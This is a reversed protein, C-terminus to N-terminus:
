FRQSLRWAAERSMSKVMYQDLEDETYPLIEFTVDILVGLVEKDPRRKYHAQAKQALATFESYLMDDMVQRIALIDEMAYYTAVIDYDLQQLLIKEEIIKSQLLNWTRSAMLAITEIRDTLKQRSRFRSLRKSRLQSPSLKRTASNGPTGVQDSFVLRYLLRLLRRNEQAEHQSDIWGLLVRMPRSSWEKLLDTTAKVRSDERSSILQHYAVSAALIAVILLGSTAAATVLGTWFIAQSDIVMKEYWESKTAFFLVLSLILALVAPGAWHRNWDIPTRRRAM